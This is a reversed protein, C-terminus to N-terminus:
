EAQRTGVCLEAPAEPTVSVTGVEGGGGSGWQATRREARDGAQGAIAVLPPWLHQGGRPWPGSPAGCRGGSVGAPTPLQGGMHDKTQKVRPIVLQSARLPHNEGWPPQPRPVGRPTPTCDAHTGNEKQAGGWQTRGLCGPTGAPGGSTKKPPPM